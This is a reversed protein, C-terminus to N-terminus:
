SRRLAGRVLALVGALVVIGSAVLYSALAVLFVVPTYKFVVRHTGAKLAIAKFALNALALMAHGGDLTASWHPHFNDRFLLIGDRDAEVELELRSPVYSVVRFRFTGNDVAPAVHLRVDDFIAPASAERGVHLTVGLRGAGDEVRRRVVLEEWEGGNRYARGAPGGSTSGTEVGLTVAGRRTNDSKAWVRAILEQGHYREPYPIEYRLVSPADPGPRVIVARRGERVSPADRASDVLGASAPPSLTWQEPLGGPTWEEFSGNWLRRVPEIHSDPDRHLHVFARRPSWPFLVTRTLLDELRDLRERRFLMEQHKESMRTYHAFFELTPREIGMLTGFLAPRTEGIDYLQFYRKPWFHYLGIPYGGPFEEPYVHPGGLRPPLLDELATNIKLLTPVYSFYSKRMHVGAVRREPFAFGRVARKPFEFDEFYRKRPQRVCGCGGPETWSFDGPQHFFRAIAWQEGVLVWLALLLPFAYRARRFVPAGALALLVWAVLTALFLRSLAPGPYLAGLVNSRLPWLWVLGAAAGVAALARGLYPLFPLPAAAPAGEAPALWSLVRDIGLGIFVLLFFSLFPDFMSLHRVLWLPPFSLYLLKHAWGLPWVPGAYMFLTLAAAAILNFRYRHRGAVLGLLLLARAVHGTWPFGYHPSVSVLGWLVQYSGLGVQPSRQEIDGYEVGLVKALLSLDRDRDYLRVAPVIESREPLLSLLPAALALFLVIGALWVRPPQALARWLDDRRNVLLSAVFGALVFAPLAWHYISAGVTMGAFYALAVAARARRPEDPAMVRLVFLLTWPFWCFSDLSGVSMMSASALYGWCAVILGVWASLVRAVLRRLVAYVGVTTVVIRLVYNVHYLDFLRVDFAKGVAISVLTVPDLLRLAGWAYHFPEGGHVYPNWLPWVGNYLSEAFYHFMPYWLLSDHIYTVKGRLLDWELWVFGALVLGVVLVECGLTKRSPPGLLLRTM